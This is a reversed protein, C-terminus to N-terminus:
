GHNDCVVVPTLTRAPVYWQRTNFFTHLVQGM